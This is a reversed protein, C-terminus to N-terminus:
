KPKNTLMFEATEQAVKGLAEDTVVVPRQPLRPKGTKPNIQRPEDSQHYIAYPTESGITLEGDQASCVHDPHNRRTYSARLDGKRILINQPGFNGGQVAYSGIQGMRNRRPYGSARKSAVTSAALPEWKIPAGGAQFQRDFDERMIDGVNKELFADQKEANGLIDKLMDLPGKMDIDFIPEM